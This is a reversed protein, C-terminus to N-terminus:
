KKLGFGSAFLHRWPSPCSHQTRPKNSNIYCWLQTLCKFFLCSPMFYQGKNLCLPNPHQDKKITISDPNSKGLFNRNKLTFKLVPKPRSPLVPPQSFGLCHPHAGLPQLAISYPSREMWYLPTGISRQSKLCAQLDSRIWVSLFIMSCITEQLWSRFKRYMGVLKKTGPKNKATFIGPNRNLTSHVISEGLGQESDCFFHTIEKCHHQGLNLPWSGVCWGFHHGQSPFSTQQFTRQITPPKQRSETESVM